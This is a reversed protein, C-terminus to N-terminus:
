AARKGYYSRENKCVGWSLPVHSWHMDRNMCTHESSMNELSTPSFSHWSHLFSDLYSMGLRHIVTEVAFHPGQIREWFEWKAPSFYTLLLSRNYIVPCLLLVASERCHRCVTELLDTQVQKKGRSTIIVLSRFVMSNHSIDRICYWLTVCYLGLYIIRTWQLCLYWM